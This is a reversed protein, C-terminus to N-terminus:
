SGRKPIAGGCRTGTTRAHWMPPTSRPEPRLLEPLKAINAAIRRAGPIICPAARYGVAGRLWPGDKLPGSRCRGAMTVGGNCGWWFHVPLKGGLQPISQRREGDLEFPNTVHQRSEDKDARNPDRRIQRMAGARIGFDYHTDRGFVSIRDGAEHM